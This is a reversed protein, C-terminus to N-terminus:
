SAAAKPLPEPNPLRDDNDDRITCDECWHGEATVLWGFEEAESDAGDKEKWAYYDGDEDQACTGCRNCITRWMDVREYSMGGGM